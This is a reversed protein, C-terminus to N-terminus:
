RQAWSVTPEVWEKMPRYIFGHKLGTNLEVEKWAGIGTADAHYKQCSQALDSREYISLVNGHLNITDLFADNASCAAIFVFNVGRNQLYTSTLMAIWSGQSAGVVTIREPPVKADLLQKVQGALKKAYQEVDTDKKRQESIVIFGSAKFSDLIQDYEYVGYQPSTPRRDQEVIKGHLYFLYRKTADIQQPVDNLIEGHKQGVDTKLSNFYLMSVADSRAAVIDPSGDGNVDGIAMGYVAGKGDGFRISRFGPGSGDNILVIGPTKENGIVVDAHGDGNMDAIATSYFTDTKEAIPLAESFKLHGQNFYIFGGGGTEDGIVVDLRGDGNLDGLAIARTSSKAPGFSHKEAFGGKGDNIFIYSQGGDRNPVVLDPLGDENIDGAGITTA